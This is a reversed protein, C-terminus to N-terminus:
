QEVCMLSEQITNDRQKAAAKKRESMNFCRTDTSM